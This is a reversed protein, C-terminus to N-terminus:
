KEDKILKGVLDEVWTHTRLDWFYTKGTDTEDIIGSYYEDPLLPKEQASLLKAYYFLHRM